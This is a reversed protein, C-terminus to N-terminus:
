RTRWPERGPTVAPAPPPTASPASRPPPKGPPSTPRVLPPAGRPAESAAASPTIAPEATAAVAPQPGEETGASEVPPPAAEALTSAPGAGTTPSRGLALWTIGLVIALSVAAALLPWRSQSGTRPLTHSGIGPDPESPRPETPAAALQLKVPTAGHAVEAEVTAEGEADWSRPVADGQASTTDFAMPVTGQLPRELCEVCGLAAALVRIQESATAFRAAPEPDTARAFWADFGPSLAVGLSTARASATQKAGRAVQAMLALPNDVQRAVEAWYPEGVMLTFAIQGLAYLDAPPGIRPDGAFQEPAMYMPTGMSRTARGAHTDRFVKAIGFDLVKLRLTGGGRQTVFLNEPKLDRHIIGAAHTRDLASAAQVLLGVVDARQLRVDRQLRAGLDEGRLLEMVLFPSGTDTDIGADFTEVLYESDVDATVQAELAFRRRLDADKLMDPLMVKLARRRRTERHLVEYITGMGGTSISRLIEYRGAFITGIALM